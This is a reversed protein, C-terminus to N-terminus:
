ALRDGSARDFLHLNDSDLTVYVRDGATLSSIGPTLASLSGGDWAVTVQSVPGVPQVIEVRCPVGTDGLHVNEARVGILTPADHQVLRAAVAPPLPFDADGVRYVVDDGRSEVRGELMGIRPSGIFEAVRRNAPRGYIEAPTGLQHVVGEFMVAIRDSLSLAEEQDHTVFISTVGLQEHLQKVQARMRIRLMADLNSFPEDFLFLQPERVMARGLAVRQQQGGSLQRPKKDVHAVLDLQGVVTAVRRRIEKKDMKQLKLPFGINQAVSMNPYLAYNQFVMAVNREIPIKENARVGDILVDGSTADELGAIIGLITTKGCGSPGLLTLFEGKEIRLNFDDFVTSGGFHKSLSRLEVHPM